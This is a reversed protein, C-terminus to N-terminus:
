STLPRRASRRHHMLPCSLLVHAIYHLPLQLIFSYCILLPLLAPVPSPSPPPPHSPSRSSPSSSGSALGTRSEKKEELRNAGILEPCTRECIIKLFIERRWFSIELRSSRDYRCINTNIPLCVSPRFPLLSSSLSPHRLASLLFHM